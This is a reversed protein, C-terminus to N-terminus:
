TIKGSFLKTKTNIQAHVEIGIVAEWGEKIASRNATSLLRIINLNPRRSFKIIPIRLMISDSGFFFLLQLLVSWTLAQLNLKLEHERREGQIQFCHSCYTLIRRFKINHLRTISQRLFLSFNFRTNGRIHLSSGSVISNGSLEISQNRFIEM